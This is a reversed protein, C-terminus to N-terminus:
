NDWLIRLTQWSLIDDPTVEVGIAPRFGPRYEPTLVWCERYSKGYLVPFGATDTTLAPRDERPTLDVGCLTNVASLTNVHGWYSEWNGSRLKELYHEFTEPIVEARRRFLNVPFTNGTIFAGSFGTDYFHAKQEKPLTMIKHEM